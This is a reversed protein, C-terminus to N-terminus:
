SNINTLIDDVVKSIPQTADIIKYSHKQFDVLATKHHELTQKLEHPQKGWDNNTRTELRHRLTKQDIVLAFVGSFLDGIQEMNNAVGCIFITEKSHENKIKEISERPVNWLHANIFENTRDAAKISSKPHIYGTETNQWRALGDDDTDFAIHGRRRLEHTISSKGSASVGTVFYLSM